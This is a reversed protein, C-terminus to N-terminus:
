SDRPSPSTYLLCSWSRGRDSSRLSVVHQGDQGEHSSGTTMVCLWAGDPLVVVYPQDCYGEDPIVLGNRINRPDQDSTPTLLALLLPALHLLM